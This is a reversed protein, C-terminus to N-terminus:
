SLGWHVVRRDGQLRGGGGERHGQDGIQVAKGM